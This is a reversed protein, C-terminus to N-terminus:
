PTKIVGNEVTLPGQIGAQALQMLVDIGGPMDDLQVQIAQKYYYVAGERDELQDKALGAWFYAQLLNYPEPHTQQQIFANFLTLAQQYNGLRNYLRGALLQPLAAEPYEELVGKILGLAEEDQNEHILRATDRVMFWYEAYGERATPPLIGVPDQPMGTEWIAAVDVGVFAGDAAYPALGEEEVLGVWIEGIAPLFIMSALNSETNIGGYFGERAPGSLKDRLFDRAVVVDIDGYYQAGLEAFRQERLASAMWGPAQFGQMYPDQYMNTSFIYNPSRRVAMRNATMEVVVAEGTGAHALMINLGVTRPTQRILDLAEELTGAYQLVRRLMLMFPLGDITVEEQLALSYNKTIVIGQENMGSMTGIFSPYNHVAFRYGTEPAYVGVYQYPAMSIFGTHDLNRGVIMQGSATAEGWAAFSSCAPGALALDQSANGMMIEYINRTTDQSAGRIFGRMEQLYEEPTHRKFAPYFRFRAYLNKFFWGVREMFTEAQNAPDLSQFAELLEPDDGLLIGHQIGIEEPSGTFYAVQIGNVEKLWGDGVWSVGAKEQVPPLSSGSYVLFGTGLIFLIIFFM